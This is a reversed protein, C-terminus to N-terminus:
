REQGMLKGVRVNAAVLFVFACVVLFQLTTKWLDPLDQFLGSAVLQVSSVFPNM